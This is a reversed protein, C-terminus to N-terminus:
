QTVDYGSAQAEIEILEVESRPEAHAWGAQRREMLAVAADLQEDTM